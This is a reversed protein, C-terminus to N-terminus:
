FKASFNSTFTETVSLQESEERSWDYGFRLNFVRSLNYSLSSTFSYSSDVENEDRDATYGLSLQLKKTMLWSMNYQQRAC